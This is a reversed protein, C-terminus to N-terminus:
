KIKMDTGFYSSNYGILIDLDHVGFFNLNPYGCDTEIIYNCSGGYLLFDQEIQLTYPVESINRKLKCTNDKPNGCGCGSYSELYSSVAGDCGFFLNTFPDKFFYKSKEYQVDTTLCELGAIQAEGICITDGM